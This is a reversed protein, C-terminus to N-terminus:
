ERFKCSSSPTIAMVDQKMTTDEFYFLCDHTHACLRRLPLSYYQYPGEKAEFLQPLERRLLMTDSACVSGSSGIYYKPRVSVVTQDLDNIPHTMGKIVKQHGSMFRFSLPTVHVQSNSFDHQPLKESWEPDTVDYIKGARIDRMGVDTEPRLYAKDDMSIVLGDNDKEFLSLKANKVHKRQHRTCENQEYETKPTKKACFLWKGLHSKAAKSSM